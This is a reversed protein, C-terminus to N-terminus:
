RIHSPIKEFTLFFILLIKLCCCLYVNAVIFSIGVSFELIELTRSMECLMDQYYPFLLGIDM